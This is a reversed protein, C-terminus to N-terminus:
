SNRATELVLGPVDDFIADNSVLPLGLRIATAAVWRDSDHIKQALPHGARHCEVRLQVYSDRLDPGSDVIEASALTSEMRVLRASGWGRLKAGFRIEADTQFSIFTQRAVVLHQYSAALKSGPVLLSSFVDTDIVAPGRRRPATM